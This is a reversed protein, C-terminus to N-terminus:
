RVDKGPGGLVQRKLTGQTSSNLDEVVYPLHPPPLGQAQLRSLGLRTGGFSLQHGYPELYSRWNAERLTRSQTQPKSNLTETEFTIKSPPLPHREPNQLDLPLEYQM